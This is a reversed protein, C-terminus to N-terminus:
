QRPRYYEGETYSRVTGDKNESTFVRGSAKGYNAINNIGNYEQLMVTQKMLVYGPTNGNGNKTFLVADDAKNLLFISAHAADEGNPSFRVIDGLKGKTSNKYNDLIKDFGLGTSAGADALIFTKKYKDLGARYSSIDTKFNGSTLCISSNFCSDEGDTNKALNDNGTSLAGEIGKITKGRTGHFDETGFSSNAENDLFDQIEGKKKGFLAAAEKKNLGTQEYFSKYNDGEERNFSLKGSEKDFVFEWLGDPDAFMIPNNGAYRYPTLNYSMEALPDLNM